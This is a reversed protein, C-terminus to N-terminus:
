VSDSKEKRMGELDDALCRVALRLVASYPQNMYESLEKLLKMGQPTVRVLAWKRGPQKKQRSRTSQASATV